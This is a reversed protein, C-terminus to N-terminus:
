HFLSVNDIWLSLVKNEKTRIEFFINKTYASVPMLRLCVRNWQAITHAVYTSRGSTENFTDGSYYRWSHGDPSSRFSFWGNGQLDFCLTFGTTDSPSTDPNIPIVIRAVTQNKKATGHLRLSHNDMAKDKSHLRLPIAPCAGIWGGLGEEFDLTYLNYAAARLSGANQVASGIRVVTHKDGSAPPPTDQISSTQTFAFPKVIFSALIPLHDSYGIGPHYAGKKTYQLKWNFPKNDYLLKGYFTFVGFSKDVYSIGSGDFLAAPLLVHDLTNRMGKYVYNWRQSPACDLWPDYHLKQGPSTRLISKTVYSLPMGPASLATKLLHNLATKGETDNLNESHFTEAENYNSNFDGAIVYDVSDRLESLRSLLPLTAAIRSSEPQRKSPFHVAFVKLTAAGIRVDAELINRTYTGNFQPGGHGIDTDIPYKSLLAQCTASHNPATGAARYPYKEGKKKLTKILDDVVNENEVECLVCLDPHAGAIVSAINSLKIRYLEQDWGRGAKYEPYENGDDKADFLNEVNYSLLRITDTYPKKKVNQRTSYNYGAPNKKERTCHHVAFPLACLLIHIFFLRNLRRYNKCTNMIQM